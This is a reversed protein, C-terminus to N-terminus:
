NDPYWDYQISGLSFIGIGSEAKPLRLLTQGTPAIVISQGQEAGEAPYNLSNPWNAQVVCANLRVALRRANDIYPEKHTTDQPDLRMIGPWFILDVSEGALQTAILETDEIERCLVASIRSGLLPIVPRESGSEFLTAEAPTLGNKEIHGLRSGDAAICVYSNFWRNNCLTPIGVFAAVAASRCANTLTTFASDLSGPDSLTRIERHFGTVSLEPFVCVDARHHAAHALASVASRVNEDIGWHMERQAVAVRLPADNASTTGDSHEGANPSASAALQEAPLV